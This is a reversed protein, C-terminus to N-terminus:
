SARTVPRCIDGHLRHLRPRLEIPLMWRSPKNFMKGQVCTACVGVKNAYGQCVEHRTLISIMRCFMTTGPCEIRSNWLGTKTPLIMSFVFGAPEQPIDTHSQSVISAVSTQLGSQPHTRCTIPLEYLGTAGAYAIVIVEIGQRLELAEEHNNVVNFTHIGHAQLDKFSILSRPASPTYMARDILLTAGRPLVITIRGERFKFDRRGAITHIQCM